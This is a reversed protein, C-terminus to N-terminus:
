LSVTVDETKAFFVLWQMKEYELTATIDASATLDGTLGHRESIENMMQSINFTLASSYSRDGNWGKDNRLSVGYGFTVNQSNYEEKSFIPRTSLTVNNNNWFISPKNVLYIGGNAVATTSFHKLGNELVSIVTIRYEHGNKVFPCVLKRTKRLHDLQNGQIDVLTSMEDNTPVELYVYVWLNTADEPIDNFDLYIGESSGRATFALDSITNTKDINDCTCFIIGFVLLIGLTIHKIKV